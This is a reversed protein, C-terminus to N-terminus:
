WKNKLSRLKTFKSYFYKAPRLIRLKSSDGHKLTILNQSGLLSASTKLVEM